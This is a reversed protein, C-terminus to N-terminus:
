HWPKGGALQFKLAAGYALRAHWAADDPTGQWYWGPRLAIIRLAENANTIALNGYVKRYVEPTAPGLAEPERTYTPRPDHRAEDEWTRIPRRIQKEM